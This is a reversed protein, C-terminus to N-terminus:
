TIKITHDDGVLNCKYGDYLRLIDQKIDLDINQDHFIKSLANAHNM